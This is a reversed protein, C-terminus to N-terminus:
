RKGGQGGRGRGGRIEFIGDEEGLRTSRVERDMGEQHHSTRQSFAHYLHQYTHPLQRSALVTYLEVSILRM